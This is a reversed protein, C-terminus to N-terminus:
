EEKVEPEEPKLSKYYAQHVQAASRKFMDRVEQPTRGPADNWRTLDVNRGEPDILAALLPLACGGKNAKVARKVLGAACFQVAAPSEWYIPNGAADLAYCGQTWEPDTFAAAKELLEATELPMPMRRPHQTPSKHSLWKLLGSEIKSERNPRRSRHSRRKRAIAPM